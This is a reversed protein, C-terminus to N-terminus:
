SDHSIEKQIKLHRIKKAMDALVHATHRDVQNTRRRGCILIRAARDCVEAAEELADDRDTSAPVTTSNDAM